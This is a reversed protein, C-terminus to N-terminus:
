HLLLEKGVGCQFHLQSGKESFERPAVLTWNVQQILGLQDFIYALLAACWFRDTRQYKPEIPINFRLEYLGMLWDWPQLDYPRNQISHYVNKLTTYFVDDRKCDVKRVYVSDKSSLSLIDSLLHLQVGMKVQGTEADPIPNWGSELLYVGDKVDNGFISSPNCIVIGVHSYPSRGFYEILYSIYSNGRFLIIDGTNLEINNVINSM